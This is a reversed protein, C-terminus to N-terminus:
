KIPGLFTTKTHDVPEGNSLVDIHLTTKRSQLQDEPIDIFMVGKIVDGAKAIPQKDGVLRFRIGNIQDKESLRFTLPLDKDTKNIVEFNYLNSIYHDDVTQYLQGKARLVLTEVQTRNMLLVVNGILLLALAITYAIVRPTLIKRKGQAIGNYSDYRILGRPKGIKDMVADCADICAPCNICELQTGNRIDIGTPCVQVCLKCDVCDGKANSDSDRQGKRIKGRPEGRVFDYAIVITDPNIMVGQLRGYPCIAICVQERMYAFVGFFIFSFLLLAIFGGLHQSIPESAIQIVREAGIIYALFINAIFVAILYFIGWKLTKKFIKKSTWPAKALRKQEKSDGEILYEIKRFVMEMFITQPCVWGCFIRGYIVTFLILFVLATLAAFVFLHFDQPLFQVGFLIFKRDIINFLLLPHGNVKIFPAAFLFGLLLWSLWTRWRYFRGKPKKPYVWLRKGSKKDVTSIHDRFSEGQPPQTQKITSMANYM